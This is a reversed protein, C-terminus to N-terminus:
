CDVRLLMLSSQLRGLLEIEKIREELRMQHEESEKGEVAKTM